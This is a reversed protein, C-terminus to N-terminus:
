AAAMESLINLEDTSVTILGKVVSEVFDCTVNSMEAEDLTENNILQLFDDFSKVAYSDLNELQELRSRLDADSLASIVYRCADSKNKIM